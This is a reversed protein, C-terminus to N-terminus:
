DAPGVYAQGIIEFEHSELRIYSESPPTKGDNSKPILCFAQCGWSKPENVILLCPFWHHEPDTIQIVDGREAMFDGGIRELSAYKAGAGPAATAAPAPLDARGDYQVTKM